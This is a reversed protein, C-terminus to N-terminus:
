RPSRSARSGASVGESGLWVDYGAGLAMLFGTPDSGGANGEASTELGGWGAFAQFHLGGKPDLYYDAFPGIGIIYQSVDIGPDYDRGNITMGPSPAYDIMFGGGIALGPIPSGGLMLSLPVTLGSYGSEIGGAEASVSYYGLGTGLQMYFGDHLNGEARANPAAAFLACAVAGSAIARKAFDASMMSKTM